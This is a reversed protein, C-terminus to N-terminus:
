PKIQRRANKLAYREGELKVITPLNSASGTKKFNEKTHAQEFNVAGIKPTNNLGVPAFYTENYPLTLITGGTQNGNVDFTAAEFSFATPNTLGANTMADSQILFDNAKIPRKWTGNKQASTGGAVIVWQNGDTNSGTHLVLCPHRNATPTGNYPFCCWVVDGFKPLPWM